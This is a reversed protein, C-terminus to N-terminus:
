CFGYSPRYRSAATSTRAVSDISPTEFLGLLIVSFRRNPTTRFIVDGDFSFLIKAAM